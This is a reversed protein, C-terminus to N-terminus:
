GPTPNIFIQTASIAFGIPQTGSTSTFGGPSAALYYSLGPTLGTANAILGRLLIEAYGGAAYNGTSFGRCLLTGTANALRASPTGANNYINVLAGTTLTDTTPLYLRNSAAILTDSPALTNWDITERGIAGTYQDLAYAVNNIASYLRFFDLFVSPDDRAEPYVPLGLNLSLQRAM